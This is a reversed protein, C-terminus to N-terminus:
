QYFFLLLKQDGGKKLFPPTRRLQKFFAKGFVEKHNRFTKQALKEFLRKPWAVSFASRAAGCSLHGQKVARFRLM